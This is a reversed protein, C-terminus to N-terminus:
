LALTIYKPYYFIWHPLMQLRLFTPFEYNQGQKREYVKGFTTALLSQNKKSRDNEAGFKQLIKEIWLKEWVSL